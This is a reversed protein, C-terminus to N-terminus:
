SPSQWRSCSSSFVKVCRQDCFSIDPQAKVSVRGPRLHCGPRTHPQAISPRWPQPQCVSALSPNDIMNRRVATIANRPFSKASAQIKNSELHSPPPPSDFLIQRSRQQRTVRKNLSQRLHRTKRHLQQTKGYKPFVCVNLLQRTLSM